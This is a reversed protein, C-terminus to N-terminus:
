TLHLLKRFGFGARGRLIERTKKVDLNMEICADILRQFAAPCRNEVEAQFQKFASLGNLNKFAFEPTFAAELDAQKIERWLVRNGFKDAIREISL